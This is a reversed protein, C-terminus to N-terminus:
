KNNSIDIGLKDAENLLRDVENKEAQRTNIEAECKAVNNDYDKYVNEKQAKLFEIDFTKKEEVAPVVKEPIIKTEEITKDDIKRYSFDADTPSNIILAGTILGAVVVGGGIIKTKNDM